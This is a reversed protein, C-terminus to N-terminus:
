SHMFHGGQFSVTVTKLDQENQLYLASQRLAAPLQGPHCAHKHGGQKRWYLRRIAVAFRNPVRRDRVEQSTSDASAPLLVRDCHPWSGVSILTVNTRNMAAESAGMKLRASPLSRRPGNVGVASSMLPRAAMHSGKKQEATYFCVETLCLM